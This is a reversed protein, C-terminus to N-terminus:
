SMAGAMARRHILRFLAAKIEQLDGPKFAIYDVGLHLAHRLREVTPNGTYIMVAPPRSLKKAERALELGLDGNELAIETIVADFKNERMSQRALAFSPVARVQYGADELVTKLTFM